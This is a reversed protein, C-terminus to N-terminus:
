EAIQDLRKQVKQHLRQLEKARRQRREANIEQQSRSSVFRIGQKNVQKQTKM